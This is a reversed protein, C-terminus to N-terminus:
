RASWPAAAMAGGRAALAAHTAADAGSWVPAAGFLTEARAGRMAMDGGDDGAPVAIVVRDAAVGPLHAQATDLLAPDHILLLGCEAREGMVIVRIDRDIFAARAEACMRLGAAVDLPRYFEFAARREGQGAGDLLPLPAPDRFDGALVTDFRGLDAAKRGGELIRPAPFPRTRGDYRLAERPATLHFHRQADHYEKRAGFLFGNIGLVPDAIASGARDRQFSLPGTALHAVARGGFVRLIRRVLENDASMRVVDWGGLTEIVPARRFMFSSTNAIVIRGSGTFRLVSLDDRMRAQESTCGIAEPASLLHDVQRAIKDPHSWDDADHLTVFEGRAEALGRNRAVYAGGNEAMEIVRIRPDRAAFGRAVEVTDDGSADDIVLIELARWSQAVLSALATPLTGRADHAAVLVSVLPGDRPAAADASLGDYPTLARPSVTVPAIDHLALAANIWPLRAEASGEFAARVLLADAGILGADRRREMWADGPAPAGLHVDCVLSTVTQRERMLTTAPLRLALDLWRRATEPRNGGQPRMAWLALEYAAMGREFRPKGHRAMEAWISPVREGHGLVYLEGRWRGVEARSRRAPDSPATPVPNRREARGHRLYHLLADAGSAAVDEYAELYARAHFGPGPDRGLAAGLSLYHAAPDAGLRAVDPYTRLYWEADFEPASRVLDLDAENM